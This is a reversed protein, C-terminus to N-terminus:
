FCCFDNYVEKWSTKTGLEVALRARVRPVTFSCHAIGVVGGGGTCKYMIWKKHTMLLATGRQLIPPKHGIIHSSAEPIM